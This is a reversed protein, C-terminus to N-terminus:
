SEEVAESAKVVQYGNCNRVVFLDAGDDSQDFILQVRITNFFM